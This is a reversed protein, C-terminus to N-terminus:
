RCCFCCCFMSRIHTQYLRILVSGSHVSGPMFLPILARSSIEMHFFLCVFVVVVVISRLRPIFPPVNEGFDECALFFGGGDIPSSTSHVRM